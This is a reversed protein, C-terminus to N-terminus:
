DLLAPFALLGRQKFEACKPKPGSSRQSPADAGGGAPVSHSQGGFGVEQPMQWSKLEAEHGASLGHVLADETPEENALRQM